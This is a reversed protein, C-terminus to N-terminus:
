ARGIVDRQLEAKLRSVDRRCSGRAVKPASGERPHISVQIRARLCQLFLSEPRALMRISAGWIGNHRTMEGEFPGELAVKQASLFEGRGCKAVPQRLMLLWWDM